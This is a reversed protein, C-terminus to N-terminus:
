GQQQGHLFTAQKLLIMGSDYFGVLVIWIIGFSLLPMRVGRCTCLWLVPVQRRLLLRQFCSIEHTGIKGYVRLVSIRTKCSLDLSNQMVQEEGKGNREM